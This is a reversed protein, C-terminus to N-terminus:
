HVFHHSITSIALGRFRTSIDYWLFPLIFCLIHRTNSLSMGLQWVGNGWNDGGVSCTYFSIWVHFMGHVEHKLM